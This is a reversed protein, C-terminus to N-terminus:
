SDGLNAGLKLLGVLIVSALKWIQGFNKWNQRLDLFLVDGWHLFGRFLAIVKRPLKLAKRGFFVNQKGGRSSGEKTKDVINM